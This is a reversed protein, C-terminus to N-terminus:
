HSVNNTITKVRYIWFKHLLYNSITTIITASIQAFLYHSDLKIMLDFILANLLLGILVVVFFKAFTVSHKEQGRFTLYYNMVYNVVAAVSYAIISSYLPNWDLWEVFIILALYQIVTALGGVGLFRIFKSNILRQM